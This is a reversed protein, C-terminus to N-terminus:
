INSISVLNGQKKKKNSLDKDEEDEKYKDAVAEQKDITKEKKSKKGFNDDSGNEIQM